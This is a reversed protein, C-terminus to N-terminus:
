WLKELGKGFANLVTHITCSGLDVLGPYKPHDQVILENMNRFITKNVNPGDRVLTAMKEVPIGDELMIVICRRQWLRVKLM